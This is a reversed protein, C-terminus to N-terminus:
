VSTVHRVCGVVKEIYDGLLILDDDDDDDDDNDDKL